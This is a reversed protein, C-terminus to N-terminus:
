VPMGYSDLIGYFYWIYLTSIGSIHNEIMIIILQLIKVIDIIILCLQNIISRVYVTHMCIQSVYNQLRDFELIKATKNELTM